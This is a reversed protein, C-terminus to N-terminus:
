RECSQASSSTQVLQFAMVLCLLSIAFPTRRSFALQRVQALCRPFKFVILGSVSLQDTESQEHDEPSRPTSRAHDGVQRDPARSLLASPM